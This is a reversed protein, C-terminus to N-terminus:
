EEEIWHLEPQYDPDSTTVTICREGGPLLDFDNDSAFVGEPEAIHLQWIFADSSLHLRCTTGDVREVRCRPPATKRLMERFPAFFYRNEGVEGCAELTM